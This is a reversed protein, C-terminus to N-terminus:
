RLSLCVSEVASAGNNGGEDTIRLKAVPKGQDAEDPHGLRVDKRTETVTM